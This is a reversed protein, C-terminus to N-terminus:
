VIYEPINIIGIICMIRFYVIAQQSHTDVCNKHVYTLYHSTHSSVYGVTYNILYSAIYSAM